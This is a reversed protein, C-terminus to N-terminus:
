GLLDQKSEVSGLVNFGAFFSSNGSLIMSATLLVDSVTLAASRYGSVGEWRLATEESIANCNRPFELCM